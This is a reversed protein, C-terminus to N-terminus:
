SLGWIINIHNTPSGGKSFCPTPSINKEGKKSGQRCLCLLLPLPWASFWPAAPSTSAAAPSPRNEEPITNGGLGDSRAVALDIQMPLEQVPIEASHCSEM